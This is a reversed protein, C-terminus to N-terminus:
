SSSENEAPLTFQVTLGPGDNRTAWIRGGHAQVISRCISLGMGVGAPKTTFFADYIREIHERDIGVGSDRISIHIENDASREAGILMQRPRDTVSLMADSANIALNLIVQELQVRDGRILPLKDALDFSVAIHNKQLDFRLLDLAERIVQAIDMAVPDAIENKVFSRIQQVVASARNGDRVILSLSDIAERVQAPERSLWRLGAEANTVVGALPQNIEHAMYTAMEGVMLTRAVRALEVEKDRMAKEAAAKQERERLELRMKESNKQETIDAFCNIAGVIEGDGNRLARINVVVTVWTGDPREIQVEIDRAEALTGALVEAMPCLEHPIYAGDPRHMKYSGCFREDTDGPMPERGWL